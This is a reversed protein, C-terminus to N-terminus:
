GRWGRLLNGGFWGLSEAILTIKEQFMKELEKSDCDKVIGKTKGCM